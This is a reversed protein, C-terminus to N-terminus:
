NAQTDKLHSIVVKLNAAVMFGGVCGIFMSIFLLLAIRLQTVGYCCVMIIFLIMYITGFVTILIQEALIADKYTGELIATIMGVGTALFLLLCLLYGKRIFNDQEQLRYNEKIEQQTKKPVGVPQQELEDYKKDSRRVSM